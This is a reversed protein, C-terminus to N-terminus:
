TYIWHPTSRNKWHFLHRKEAMYYRRYSEVPDDTKYQDPMALAFPTMSDDIPSPIHTPPTKLIDALKRWTLHEKNYRFRYENALAELLRFAWLYNAKVRRVWISCPHNIHTKRYLLKTCEDEVLDCDLIRHATSLMQATELIMKVVHRDTHYQACWTVDRDLVFINM